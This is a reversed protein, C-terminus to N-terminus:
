KGVAKYGCDSLKEEVIVCVQRDVLMAWHYVVVVFFCDDVEFSNLEWFEFHTGSGKGARDSGALSCSSTLSAEEPAVQHPTRTTPTDHPTESM